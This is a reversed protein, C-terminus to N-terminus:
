PTALGRCDLLISGNLIEAKVKEEVLLFGIWDIAAELTSFVRVWVDTWPNTRKETDVPEIGIAFSFYHALTTSFFVYWWFSLLVATVGPKCVDRRVTRDKELLLTALIPPCFFLTRHLSKQLKRGPGTLPLVM